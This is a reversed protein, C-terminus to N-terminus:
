TGEIRTVFISIIGLTLLGIFIMYSLDYNGTTDFVWGALPVGIVQVPLMAPRLLGLVRGFSLRGFVKAVITGQLPVVGGMGLGYVLAAVILLSYTEINMLMVAGCIQLLSCALVALKPNINDMLWGFLLKGVVGAGAAMSLIFASNTTSFGLDRIQPILHTLIAPFVCLYVAFTFAITWFAPNRVLTKTTWETEPILEAVPANPDAKEGDPLLGVDEPRTKIFFFIIPAAIFLVLCGYVGYAGRWGLMEILWTAVPPMIVGSASIGMAAIGIAIGRKKNFWNTVLRSSSQGGLASIGGAVLTGVVLFLQWTNNVQSLLFFGSSLLVAGILMINRTPYRDLAQGLFPAIFAGMSTSLMLAISIGLRSGGFDEALASFFVGFSYFFLGAAFFDGLFAMGVMNWGYFYGSRDQPLQTTTTDPETM